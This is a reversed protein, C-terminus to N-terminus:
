AFAEKHARNNNQIMGHKQLKFIPVISLMFLLKRFFFLQESQHRLQEKRIGFLRGGIMEHKVFQIERNKSLIPRVIIGRKPKL